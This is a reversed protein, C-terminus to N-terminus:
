DSSTEVMACGWPPNEPDINQISSLLEISIVPAKFYLADENKTSVQNVIWSALEAFITKSVLIKATENEKPQDETRVDNHAGEEAIKLSNNINAIIALQQTYIAKSALYDDKRANTRTLSDDCRLIMEDINAINVELNKVISDLNIM